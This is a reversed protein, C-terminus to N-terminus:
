PPTSSSSSAPPPTIPLSLAPSVPPHRPQRSPYSLPVSVCPPGSGLRTCISSFAFTSRSCRVRSLNIATTRRTSNDWRSLWILRRNFYMCMVLYKNKSFRLLGPYKVEKCSVEFYKPCLHGRWLLLSTHVTICPVASTTRDVGHLATTRSAPASLRGGQISNQAAVEKERKSNTPKPPPFCGGRSQIGLPRCSLFGCHRVRGDFPARVACRMAGCFRMWLGRAWGYRGVWVVIRPADQVVTAAARGTVLWRTSGGFTRHGDPSRRWRSRRAARKRVHRVRGLWTAPGSDQRQAACSALPAAPRDSEYRRLTGPFLGEWLVFFTQTARQPPRERERHGAGRRPSEGM